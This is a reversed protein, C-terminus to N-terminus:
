HVRRCRDIDANIPDLMEQTAVRHRVGLLRVGGQCTDRGVHRFELRDYFLVHIGTRNEIGRNRGVSVKSSALLKVIVPEVFTRDERRVNLRHHGLSLLGVLRHHSEVLDEFRFLRGNIVIELGASFYRQAGIVEAVASVQGSKSHM